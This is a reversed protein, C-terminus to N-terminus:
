HFHHYFANIIANREKESKEPFSLCINKRVLKLRYRAVYRVLPYILYDALFYLVSLPFLSFVRILFLM